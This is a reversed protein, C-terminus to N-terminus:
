GPHEACPGLDGGHDVKKGAKSRLPFTGPSWIRGHGRWKAVEAPISVHFSM